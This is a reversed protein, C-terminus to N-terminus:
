PKHSISTSPIESSAGCMLRLGIQRIEPIFGRAQIFRGGKALAPLTQLPANGILIQLRRRNRALFKLL